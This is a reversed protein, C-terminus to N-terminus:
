WKRQTEEPFYIPNPTVAGHRDILKLVLSSYAGGM